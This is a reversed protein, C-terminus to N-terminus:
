NTLGTKLGIRLIVSSGPQLDRDTTDTRRYGVQAIFCEDEYRVGGGSILTQGLFLDRRAEAFVSWHGYVALNADVAIEERPGLTPDVSERTLNLYGLNVSSGKYEAQLYVENRRLSFTSPDFRYRHILNIYPAFEVKFRGVIDSQEGGLGSGPAFSTDRTTRFDRGIIAEISGTPLFATARLGVNSRGGGTWVDLGPFENQSFLNIEDFEFSTADENPIGRRNGGGSAAVIQVIPELVLTGHSTFDRAYPWRWELVAAALGRGITQTNNGATPIGFTADTVHYLDGRALGELTILQGNDTIFLRMWDTSVSGRAVDTGTPRSLILASSDVRLRGGLVKEEPIYSFEALPLVFPTQGAPENARLSQFFYGTVAMRSRGQIRDVFLDTTLRDSYSIDYRRLYTDNSTLAVDFGTRWGDGLPIRGSGFIHSMWESEGAIRTGLSDYGLAGQLWFGGDDFRQRYEGKLLNGADTTLFPALTLDQSPSLSFYYPAEVFTGLQSSTGITPLLVGSKHRVTPDAQTLYPVYAVPIGLFELSANEFKLEREVQDHTVMAARIQWVPPKGDDACVRCPSFLAGKAETYRGDQRLGSAATLRGNEGILAAFGQLAGDRFDGSLQVADAFAVNGSPETLTVHGDASIAGTNQDYTVTDAHLMRTDDSIEVRGKATVIGKETDYIIEDARLLIPNEQAATATVLTVGVAFGAAALIPVALSAHL